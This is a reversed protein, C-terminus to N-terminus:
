NSAQFQFVAGSRKTQLALGIALGAVWGFGHTTSNLNAKSPVIGMSQNNTNSFVRLSVCFVSFGM